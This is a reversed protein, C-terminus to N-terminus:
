VESVRHKERSWRGSSVSGEGEKECMGVEQEGTVVEVLEEREKSGRM